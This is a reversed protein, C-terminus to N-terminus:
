SMLKPSKPAKARSAGVRVSIRAGVTVMETMVALAAMVAGPVEVVRWQDVKRTKVTSHSNPVFDFFDLRAAV